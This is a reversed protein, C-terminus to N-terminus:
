LSLCDEGKSRALADDILRLAVADDDGVEVELWKTKQVLLGRMQEKLM